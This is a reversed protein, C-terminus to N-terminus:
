QKIYFNKGRGVLNVPSRLKKKTQLRSSTLKNCFYVKAPKVSVSQLICAPKFNEAVRVGNEM